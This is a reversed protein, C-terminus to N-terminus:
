IGQVALGQGKKMNGILEGSAEYDAMCGNPACIVYPANMPQGQDIVVRTGPALAMGLPLTIRLIKKPEGDPEILVAAVVPQGTEIAGDKGTLCVRKANAEQGKPCVKTWPSFSLKPQEGQAQQQQQPQQQPTQQQSQQKAGSPPSAKKPSSPA